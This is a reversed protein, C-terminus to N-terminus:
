PSNARTLLRQGFWGQIDQELWAVTRPGLDYHKPFIGKDMYRYITSRSLGTIEKVQALRLFRGM